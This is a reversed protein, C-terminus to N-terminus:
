ETTIDHEKCLGLFAVGFIAPLFLPTELLGCGGDKGTIQQHAEIRGQVPSVISRRRVATTGYRFDFGAAATENSGKCGPCEVKVGITYYHRSPTESIPRYIVTASKRLCLKGRRNCVFYRTNCVQLLVKAHIPVVHM